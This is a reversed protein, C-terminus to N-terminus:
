PASEYVWLRRIWVLMVMMYVVYKAIQTQFDDTQGKMCLDLDKLDNGDKSFHARRLHHLLTSEQPDEVHLAKAAVAPGCYKSKEMIKKREVDAQLTFYGMLVQRTVLNM